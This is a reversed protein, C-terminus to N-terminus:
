ATARQPLMKQIAQKLEEPRQSGIFYSDGDKTAVHVGNRGSFSFFRERQFSINGGHLQAVLPTKELRCSDIEEWKIKRKQNHLPAMKFQIGKKTVATKLRFRKIMFWLAVGVVAFMGLCIMVDTMYAGGNIFVEKVLKYSILGLMIILGCIIEANRFNQSEKFVKKAM